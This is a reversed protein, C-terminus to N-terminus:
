NKDRTAVEQVRIYKTDFADVSIEGGTATGRVGGADSGYTEFKGPRNWNLKTAVAQNTPNYVYILWANEDEIPHISAAMFTPPSMTLLPPAPKGQRVTAVLLLQRSETGYRVSEEERFAAHPILAYRFTVPGEQDAKYNTHWYNNMVYSYIEQSPKLARMWPEEAHIGGVEILPSDAITLTIGRDENSVDVWGVASLVNKCSGPLQDLEPRVISNAVDYRVQGGPVRLPFAFHVSEKERVALKDISDLLDVRPSAATVRIESSYKRAGPADAEVVLSAILPGKEKIRVKINSLSHSHESGRGLVYLYQNLEGKARDVFEIGAAKRRLSAVAGTDPDVVVTLVGNELSTGTAEAGSRHFPTGPRLLFRRSSFPLINEVLVALEGTTLRQSPVARGESDVVRDGAASMVPGLVVIDTRVWSATNYVDVANPFTDGKLASNLLAQSQRDADLAFRQKAKWEAKVFPSDPESISKDAGWTHEDWLAVNRWADVFERWPYPRDSRISWLTEAQILRDVSQRVLATEAATSAAGDEWYPTFDGKVLPLNAGYRREFEQMMQQHTALILRPTIYRENWNKVFDSLTADPAGNDGLTYPLHVMEYPYGTDDLHRTMKLIKEDGLTGLTGEHFASYSAGAVWTLVKEKGSQSAWYFPKDGWTSLVYGIRDGSNPATALYKIGSQSLASVMGWTLGPVDSIAATEIPISHEKRLQRAFEFFHSMEEANALGTLVNAYLANVGLAGDHIAELVEQRKQTSAQRMYTDLAWIVEFNWKYRAEPPYSKTKQILELAQDLNRWQKREVESQLDTYGIDNHSYSLLYFDRPKVPQVVVEMTKVPQGNIQFVAAVRTEQIAAPIPLRVINAGVSLPAVVPSRGPITVHVTRGPRLSDLSLHLLQTAKKGDRLLAPEARLRPEFNFQYQFTMYWDASDSDEGVVGLQLPFGPSFDAKPITLFM